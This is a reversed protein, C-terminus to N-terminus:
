NSYNEKKRKTWKNHKLHLLQGQWTILVLRLSVAAKALLALLSRTLRRSSSAPVTFYLIKQSLHAEADAKAIDPPKWIQAM